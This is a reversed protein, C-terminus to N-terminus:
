LGNCFKWKDLVRGDEGVILACDYMSSTSRWDIPQLELVSGIPYMDWNIPEKNKREVEADNFNLKKIVLDCEENNKLLRGCSELTDIDNLGCDIHLTNYKRSHGVVRTLIRVPREEWTLVADSYDTLTKVTVDLEEKLKELFAKEEDIKQALKQGEVESYIASLHLTTSTTITEVLDLTVPDDPSLGNGSGFDIQLAIRWKQGSPNRSRLMATIGKEDSLGIYFVDLQESLQRLKDLMDPVFVGRYLIEDFSGKAFFDVERLTTLAVRGKVGGTMIETGERTMQNDIYPRVSGDLGNIVDHLKSANEMSIDGRIILNPTQLEELTLLKESEKDITPELFKMGAQVIDHVTFNVPFNSISIGDILCNLIYKGSPLPALFNATFTGDQNNKVTCPLPTKHTVEYLTVECECESTEERTSTRANVIFPEIGYGTDIGTIKKGCHICVAYCEMPDATKKVHINIPCQGILEGNIKVM